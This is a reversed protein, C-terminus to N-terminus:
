PHVEVLHPTPTPGEAPWETHKLTTHSWSARHSQFSLVPNLRATGVPVARGKGFTQPKRKGLASNHCLDQLSGTPAALVGM